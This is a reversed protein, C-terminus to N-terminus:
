VQDRTLGPLDLRQALALCARDGLSLSRAATRLASVSTTVLSSRSAREKGSARSMM